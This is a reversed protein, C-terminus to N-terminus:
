ALGSLEPVGGKQLTLKGAGAFWNAFVQPETPLILGGAMQLYRFDFHPRVRNMRVTM